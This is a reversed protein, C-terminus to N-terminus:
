HLFGINGMEIQDNYIPDFEFSNLKIGINKGQVTMTGVQEEMDLKSTEGVTRQPQGKKLIWEHNNWNSRFAYFNDPDVFAPAVMLGWNNTKIFRVKFEILYNPADPAPIYM